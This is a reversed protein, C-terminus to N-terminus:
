ATQEERWMREVLRNYLVVGKDAASPLDKRTPDLDIIKQQASIMVKDEEFAQNTMEVMMDVMHDIGLGRKPGTVFFYRASRDTMATVAQSSIVQDMAPLEAPPAADKCNDATGPPYAASTIRLIGPVLYENVFWVDVPQGGNEMGPQQRMWRKFQVGREMPSIEVTAKASDETVPFSSAHVFAAHSLDCLNDHILRPEVDYDLEGKGLVYDPNDLGIVDPVLAPDALQPDGPWVWVWGHRDIVPYTRVRATEPVKDQGPIEVCRGESDFLFGHYMCRLHDGECRGLSLPAHRHVCRDELATVDGNERRYIVLPDNAISVAHLKGALIDTSWAAAYWAKLVHRM